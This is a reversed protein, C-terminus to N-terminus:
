PRPEKTVSGRGAFWACAAAGFVAYEAGGLVAICCYVAGMLWAATM